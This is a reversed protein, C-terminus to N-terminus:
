NLPQQENHCFRAIHGAQRCQRCIPRGANDWENKQFPVYRNRPPARQREPPSPARSRADDSPQLLPKIEKMLEKTMGQMQAKVDEMIEKKLTERWDRDQPPNSASSPHVAHCTVDTTGGYENDLSLAEQRLATFDEDPNRRAYIRLARSLPGETLGMLLQDKLVANSPAADGDHRRLGCALERFRLIYASISEGPRQTCGYFQSRLKSLSVTEKYLSDLCTFIKVTTNREEEEAVMVQRKAEGSLTHLIIAVKKAETLEQTSLLGRIQQKWEDYKERGETGEFKPLWPAGPYVPM